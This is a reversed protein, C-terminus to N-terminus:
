EMVAVDIIVLRARISEGVPVEEGTALVLARPAHPTSPQGDKSARSRGQRNGTARFVQEAVSQLARDGSGNPAFDDIVLLADKACFALEQLAFATSSFGSPLSAGSMEAGFHQQCLAALSSKFVGSKGALFLSFGVGGFAARYVSALLPFTIRDPALRLFGLSERIAEARLEPNHPPVIRYTQLAAPLRVRTGAVPGDSSLGGGAHLYIWKSDHQRWGLHTFIREQHIEGSLFQIAARAHQQQGPHIIAQPGLKSLVWDMRSFETATVLFTLKNGGLEAEIGFERREQEGDDIVVDRVIRAQFNAVLTTKVTGDRLVEHRVTETGRQAYPSPSKPWRHPVATKRTETASEPDDDPGMWVLRFNMSLSSATTGSWM